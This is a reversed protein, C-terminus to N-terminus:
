VIKLTIVGNIDLKIISKIESGGQILFQDYKKYSFKDVLDIDFRASKWILHKEYNTLQEHLNKM